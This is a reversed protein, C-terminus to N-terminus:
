SIKSSCCHADVNANSNGQGCSCRSQLEPTFLKRHGGILRLLDENPPRRAKMQSCLSEGCVSQAQIVPRGRGGALTDPPRGPKAAQLGAMADTRSKAAQLHRSWAPGGFCPRREILRSSPRVRGNLCVEHQTAIPGLRHAKKPRAPSCPTHRRKEQRKARTSAQKRAQKHAQNSCMVRSSLTNPPRWTQGWEIFSALGPLVHWDTLHM